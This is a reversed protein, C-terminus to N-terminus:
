ESRFTVYRRIPYDNRKMDYIQLLIDQRISDSVRNHLTDKRQRKSISKKSPRYVMGFSIGIHNDALYLHVSGDGVKLNM